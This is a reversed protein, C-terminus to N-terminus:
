AVFDENNVIPSGLNVEFVTRGRQRYGGGDLVSIVRSVKSVVGFTM